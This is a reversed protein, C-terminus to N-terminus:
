PLNDYNIGTNTIYNDDINLLHNYCDYENLIELKPDELALAIARQKNYELKSRVLDYMAQYDKRDLVKQVETIMLKLRLNDDTVSDFTYDFLEDYLKFGLSVLGQHFLPSGWILFINRGLLCKVTKETIFRTLITSESVLHLFSQFWERPVIDEHFKGTPETLYLLEFTELCEENPTKNGLWSIANGEILNNDILSKMLMGRHEHAKSNLCILPYKFTSETNLFERSVQELYTIKFFITPWLYVHRNNGSFLGSKYGNKYWEQDMSGFLFNVTRDGLIEELQAQTWGINYEEAAFINITSPNFQKVDRKIQFKLRNNPLYRDLHYNLIM